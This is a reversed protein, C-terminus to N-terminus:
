GRGDAEPVPALGGCRYRRPPAARAADGAAPRDSASLGAAAALAGALMLGACAGMALPYLRGLAGPDTLSGKGLGAVLPLAAVALLSAARAVSTNVGSAVGAFADDVAGLATTTLPAVLLSLGLGLLVVGPLVEGPYSARPGVRSLLLVAAACIAPGATLPLRPGSRHGLAGAHPSLLLMLATVPLLAAGAALPTFGAVVQLQLALLFFAGGLAAYVALTVLNAVVFPRSAFLRLPLLPARSRGEVVVFAALGAAGAALAALVEPSRGGAAPWAILGYTLAGLGVTGAVVGPLDLSRSPGGGRTEPVHRVAVAAVALALPVNILFVLRWSAAQVAWGGLFPGVAAAIGALGSWAGIARSRDDPHFSANLIALAGPTLLAGGIGQLARAIVLTTVDRALACGLSAAAFWLVGVVFVRRRGFRDGLSGGLLILAALTVSYGNVTWQLGAAGAGLSEGIAPLAINVVTGDIFAMASGLVTALLVWRGAPEGYRVGGPSRAGPAAPAPDM